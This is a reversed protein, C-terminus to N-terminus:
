QPVRTIPLMVRAIYAPPDGGQGGPGPPVRLMAENAGGGTGRLLGEM